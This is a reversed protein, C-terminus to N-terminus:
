CETCHPDRCFEEESSSDDSNIFHLENESESDSTLLEDCSSPLDFYNVKEKKNKYSM